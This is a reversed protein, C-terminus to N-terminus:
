ERGSYGPHRNCQTCQLFGKENYVWTHPPCWTKPKKNGYGTPEHQFYLGLIVFVAVVVLLGM